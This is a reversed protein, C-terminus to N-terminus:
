SILQCCNEMRAASGINSMEQSPTQSRCTNMDGGRAKESIDKSDIIDSLRGPDKPFLTRAYSVSFNIPIISLTWLGSVFVRTWSMGEFYEERMIRGGRIPKRRPIKSTTASRRSTQTIQKDKIAEQRLAALTQGGPSDCATLPPSPIHTVSLLSPRPSGPTWTSSGADGGSQSLDSTYGTRAVSSERLSCDPESDTILLLSDESTPGRPQSCRSCGGLNLRSAREVVSSLM